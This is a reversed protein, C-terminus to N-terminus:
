KQSSADDSEQKEKKKDDYSKRLICGLPFLWTCAFLIKFPLITWLIGQSLMFTMYSFYLFLSKMHFFVKNEDYQFNPFYDKCIKEAWIEKKLIRCLCLFDYIVISILSFTAMISLFLNHM